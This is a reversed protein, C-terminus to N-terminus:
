INALNRQLPSRHFLLRARIRPVVTAAFAAFLAVFVYLAVTFLQVGDNWNNLVEAFALYLYILGIAFLLWQIRRFSSAKWLELHDKLTLQANVLLESGNGM